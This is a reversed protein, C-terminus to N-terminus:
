DLNDLTVVIDEPDSSGCAAIFISAFVAVLLVLKKMIRRTSYGSQRDASIEQAVM